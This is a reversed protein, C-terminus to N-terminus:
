LDDTSALLPAVTFKHSVVAWGLVVLALLELVGAMAFIPALGFADSLWGALPITILPALGWGLAMLLSQVTAAWAAPAREDGLSVTMAFYLGFGVGKLMACFLLFLPTTAAAYGFFAVALILYSLLLTNPKGLRRAVGGSFHMTPLEAIASLGFLGGVLLGSGGLADMYVGSFTVYLGEGAGVLFNAVLLTMLATDRTLLRLPPRHQDSTPSATELGQVALLAPLFGLAGVFFMMEYGAQAWWAGAALSIVAFGFSGWVRLKGYDIRYRVAMRAALADAIPVSISHGLSLLVALPLILGFRRPWRLLFLAVAVGVLAVSLVTRQRRQRDALAATFPAVVLRALPVLAGLLGVHFASLGLHVFHVYLFPGYIALAGWYFLYYIAGRYAPSCGFPPGEAVPDGSRPRM